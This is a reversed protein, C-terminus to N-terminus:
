FFQRVSDFEKQFAHFIRMGEDPGAMAVIAAEPPDESAPPNASMSIGAANVAHDAAALLESLHFQAGDKEQEYAPNGAPDHHYAVASCIPTPLNWRELALSSLRSHDGGLIETECEPISRGGLAHLEQVERFEQPKVTAILLKGFDHFLGAVFAGEPYNVPVVQALHDAMVATGVSHLNFRSHSWEKPTKVGSWMRSISLGLLTNRLKNLGLVSVAHPVSNIEGRRAYAASNVLRLVNGSLVTDKEILVSLDSFRVDECAISALLKNLIPSFPPLQGLGKSVMTEFDNATTYM